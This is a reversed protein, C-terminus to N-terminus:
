IKKSVIIVASPTLGLAELPKEFDEDSFIKKPFNTMMSFPESGDTRNMQIYLRVASLQEKCGFTHTLTQGNTLRIQIRAETYDKQPRSITEASSAPAPTASPSSSNDAFKMKRALKDAEIQEKVRQRAKQDEIKERRHKEIMRKMEEEKLKERMLGLEKGSQIRRKERELEDKREKEEREKRKQKMKEEILRLQEKKEEETLPKKEETSESFNSHGSKVAHYEVELQSQFLKNCSHLLLDECKISKPEGKKEAENSGESADEKQGPSKEDNKSEEVDVSSSPESNDESNSLLWELAIGVGRNGTISLAKEAKDESFGMEVLATVDPTSM